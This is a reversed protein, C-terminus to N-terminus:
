SSLPVRVMRFGVRDLFYDPENQDRYAARARRASSNWSGGRLVRKEPSLPDERERSITYPYLLFLSNTWEWVNGAMDQVNYPSAGQPYTGLPTTGNIGSESTNCRAPDFDDGWPYIRGDTGRAAKEWEAETPVRWAEGTCEALWAAYAVASHWSIRGVPHDLKGQQASWNEVKYQRARLFCAYEAVTVQFRAIEFASLTVIHQPQEDKTGAPDQKPDSGMLFAGSPVNCLPPIIVEVGHIVRWEFGLEILRAQFHEAPVNPPLGVAGLVSALADDYEQTADYRHLAGWLPPISEPSTPLALVPIVARMRKQKVLDIAAFVEEQVWDSAIANPTLVLVLWESRSLGDSIHKPFNGHQIAVDDVWVEAGSARLDTVLRQTFANDKHSHSVFVRPQTM